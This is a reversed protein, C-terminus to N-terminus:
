RRTFRPPRSTSCSDLACRIRSRSTILPHTTGARRITAASSRPPDTGSDETAQMVVFTPGLGDVAAHFDLSTNGPAKTYVNTLELPGEGLWTELESVYTPTLLTSGGVIMGAFSGASYAAVLMAIVIRAVKRRM